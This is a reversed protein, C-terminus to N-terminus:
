VEKIKSVGALGVTLRKKPKPKRKVKSADYNPDHRLASYDESNEMIENQIEHQQILEQDTFGNIPEITQRDLIRTIIVDAADHFPPRWSPKGQSINIRDPVQNSKIRVHTCALTIVLLLLTLTQFCLSSILHTYEPIIKLRM